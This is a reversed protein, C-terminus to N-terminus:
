PKTGPEWRWFRVAPAPDVVLAVLLGNDMRIVGAEEPLLYSSLYAGDSLRYADVTRKPRPAAEGNLLLLRTGDSTAALATYQADPDSRFGRSKRGGPGLVTVPVPKPLDQQQIGRYARVGSGTSDVLYFRDSQVSVVAASGHPLSSLWSEIELLSRNAREAPPPFKRAMQGLSDFETIFTHVRAPLAWIRGASRPLFKTLRTTFPVTKRLSGDAELITMRGNAPDYIWVRKDADLRLDFPSRFEGPGSGLRGATWLLKGEVSFAKIAMDGGDAVVVVGDAVDMLYPNLLLLDNPPVGGVLRWRGAEWRRNDRVQGELCPSMLTAAVATLVVAISSSRM